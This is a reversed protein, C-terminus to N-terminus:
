RKDEENKSDERLEHYNELEGIRTVQVEVKTLEM